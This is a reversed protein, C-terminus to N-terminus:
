IDDSALNLSQDNEEYQSLNQYSGWEGNQLVVTPLDQIKQDELTADSPIIDDDM